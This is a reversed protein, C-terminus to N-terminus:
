GRLFSIKGPNDHLNNRDSAYECTRLISKKEFDFSILIQLANIKELTVIYFLNPNISFQSLIM